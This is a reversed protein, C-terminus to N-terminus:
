SYRSVYIMGFYGILIIIQNFLYNDLYTTCIYCIRLYAKRNVMKKVEEKNVEENVTM